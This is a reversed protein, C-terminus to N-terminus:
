EDIKVNAWNEGSKIRYLQMTSIGFQKAIMKMRTKRNPDMIKKKILRVRGETLKLGRPNERRKKKSAIVSPNKKNHEVLEKRNVFELNDIHNNNKVYDKHIVYPKDNVNTLFLEAVARHVYILDNKGNQKTRYFVDYGALVGLKMIEYDGVKNKKAVRGHNSIQLIEETRWIDKTFDKWVENRLNIIM